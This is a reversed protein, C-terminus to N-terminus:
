HWPFSPPTLALLRGETNVMQGRLIRDDGNYTSYYFDGSGDAGPSEPM